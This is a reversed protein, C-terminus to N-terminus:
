RYEEFNSHGTEKAHCQAEGAGVLGIKCDVCRLTFNSTDTYAREKHLMSCLTVARQFAVDDNSSFITMDMEEPLGKDYTFALADYHIGDYIVFIRRKYSSSSGYVDFVDRVVDLAVIEIEFICSFIVLEIQGGWGTPSTVFNIYNCPSSGLFAETYVSPKSTIEHAVLQRLKTSKTRSKSFLTYGISNFLCAGDDKMIRRILLGEPNIKPPEIEKNNQISTVEEDNNMKDTKNLDDNNGIFFDVTADQEEKVLSVHIMNMDKETIPFHDLALIRKKGEELSSTLPRPPYGVKWLQLSAKLSPINFEILTAVDGYTPKTSPLQITSSGQAHRIRINKM